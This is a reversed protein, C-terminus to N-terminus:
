YSVIRFVTRLQTRSKGARELFENRGPRRHNTLPPLPNPAARGPLGALSDDAARDETRTVSWRVHPAPSTTPWVSPSPTTPSFKPVTRPRPTFFARDTGSLAHAAPHSPTRRRPDLWNANGAVSRAVSGTQAVLESILATDSFDHVADPRRSMCAPLSPRPLRPATLPTRDPLIARALIRPIVSPKAIRTRRLLRRERDHWQLGPM